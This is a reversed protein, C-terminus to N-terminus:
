ITTWVFARREVLGGAHRPQGRRLGTDVLARPDAFEQAAGPVAPFEVHTGALGPEIRLAELDPGIRDHDLVALRQALPGIHGLREWHMDIIAVDNDLRSGCDAQIHVEALLEMLGDDRGQAPVMRRPGETSASRPSSKPQLSYRHSHTGAKAPVVFNDPGCARWNRRAAM